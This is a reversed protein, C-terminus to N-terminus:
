VSADVGLINSSSCTLSTKAEASDLVCLGEILDECLREVSEMEASHEDVWHTTGMSM